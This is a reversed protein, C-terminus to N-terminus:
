VSVLLMRFAITLNSISLEEGLLDSGTAFDDLTKTKWMIFWGFLKLIRETAM